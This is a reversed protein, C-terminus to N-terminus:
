YLARNCSAFPLIDPGRVTIAPKPAPTVSDNSATVGNSLMLVVNYMEREEGFCDLEHGVSDVVSLGRFGAHAAEEVGNGDYGALAAEPAEELAKHGCSSSLCGVACCAKAGVGEQAM